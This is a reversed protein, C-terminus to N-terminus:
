RKQRCRDLAVGTAEDDGVLMKFGRYGAHPGDTGHAAATAAFQVIRDRIGPMGSRSYVRTKRSSLRCLQVM